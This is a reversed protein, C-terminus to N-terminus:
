PKECGERHREDIHNKRHKDRHQYELNEVHNNHRDHDIHHIENDKPIPGLFTIAVLKHVNPCGGKPRLDVYFYYGGRKGSYQRLVLRTKKNRVRGRTSVQHSPHDEIVRWRERNM